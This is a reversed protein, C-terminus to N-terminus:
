RKQLWAIHRKMAESARIFFKIKEPLFSEVGIQLKSFGADKFKRILEKDRGAEVKLM